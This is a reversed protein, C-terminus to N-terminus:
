SGPREHRLLSFPGGAAEDLRRHLEGGDGISHKQEEESEAGGAASRRPCRRSRRRRRRREEEVGRQLEGKVSSCPGRSDGVTPVVGAVAACSSRKNVVEAVIQVTVGVVDGASAGYSTVRGPEIKASESM